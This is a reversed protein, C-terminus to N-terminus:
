AVREKRTLYNALGPWRSKSFEEGPLRIGKQGHMERLYYERGQSAEIETHRLARDNAITASVRDLYEEWTESPNHADQFIITLVRVGMKNGSLLIWKRHDEARLIVEKDLPSRQWEYINELRRGYKRIKARLYIRFYWITGLFILLALGILAYLVGKSILDSMFALLALAIFLATYQLQKM